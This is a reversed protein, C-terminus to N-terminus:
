EDRLHRNLWSLQSGLRLGKMPIEVAFGQTDLFPVIEERYREGALVIVKADPRLVELLQRRVQEAWATREAKAMKNLTKEYPAVIMDPPLLGHAASLIFWCDANQEAYRRMRVFLPSTYLDRAPAKEKRKSKVCSVLAVPNTLNKEPKCDTYFPDNLVAHFPTRRLEGLNLGPCSSEVEVNPLQSPQFIGSM